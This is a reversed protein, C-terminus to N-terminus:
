KQTPKSKKATPTSFTAFITDNKDPRHIRRDDDSKSSYSYGRKPLTSLKRDDQAVHHNDYSRSSSCSRSWSRSCLPSRLNKKFHDRKHDDKKKYSKSSKSDKNDQCPRNHRQNDQHRYDPRCNNCDRQDSPHYNCYKHSCHQQYSSEHSCAAPLHATKKEKPQKKDKAIKEIIGAAKNTVQCHEFFAILKLPDTPVTKNLDTFKFQHAKPQAFFIQESKEQAM